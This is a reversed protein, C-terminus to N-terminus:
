LIEKKYKEFKRVLYCGIEYLYKAKVAFFNEDLGHWMHLAEFTFDGRCDIEALAKM